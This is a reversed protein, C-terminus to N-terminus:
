TRLTCTWDFTGAEYAVGCVGTAGLYEKTGGVIVHETTPPVAAGLAFENASQLLLKAGDDWEIVGTGVKRERIGDVDTTTYSLDFRGARVGDRFM